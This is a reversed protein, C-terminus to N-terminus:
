KRLMDKVARAADHALDGIERLRHVLREAFARRAPGEFSDLMNALPRLDQETAVLTDLLRQIKAAEQSRDAGAIPTTEDSDQM